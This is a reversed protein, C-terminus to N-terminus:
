EHRTEKQGKKGIFMDANEKTKSLKCKICASMAANGHNDRGAKDSVQDAM